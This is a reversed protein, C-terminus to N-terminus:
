CLYHSIPWVIRLAGITGKSIEAIKEVREVRRAETKRAKIEKAAKLIEAEGKVVIERQEEVPLAAVVAAVSVAVEDSEVAQQLSEDGHKAVKVARAVSQEGIGFKKLLRQAHIVL